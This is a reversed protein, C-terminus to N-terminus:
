IYKFPFKDKKLKFKNLFQISKLWIRNGDAQLIYGGTIGLQLCEVQRGIWLKRGVVIRAFDFLDPACEDDEVYQGLPLHVVNHLMKCSEATLHFVGTQCLGSRASAEQELEAFLLANGCRQTELSRFVIMANQIDVM